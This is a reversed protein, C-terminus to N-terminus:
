RWCRSRDGEGVRHAADGAGGAIQEARLRELVFLADKIESDPLANHLATGADMPMFPLRSASASAGPVGARQVYDTAKQM